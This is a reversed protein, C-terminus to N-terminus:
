QVRVLPGWLPYYFLVRKSTYPLTHPCHQYSINDWLAVACQELPMETYSDPEANSTNDTNGLNARDAIWMCGTIHLLQCIYM